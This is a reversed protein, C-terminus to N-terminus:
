AAGWGNEAEEPAAAPKAAAKNRFSSKTKPPTSPTPASSPSPTESQVRAAPTVDASAAVPAVAVPSSAASSTGMTPSESDGDVIDQTPVTFTQILAYKLGMSLAKATAKDGSDLGEAPVTTSVSSGDDISSFTYKLLLSVHKDVGASNNKRIVDKLQVDFRLTDVTMVIGHRAFLPKFNNLMDDIGRFNFGQASNRSNKDVAGLDKLLNNMRSYITNSM